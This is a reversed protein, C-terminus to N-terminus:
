LAVPMLSGTFLVPGSPVGTTSGGSPELSVALAGRALAEAIEHPLVLVTTTGSRESPFLGSLALRAM